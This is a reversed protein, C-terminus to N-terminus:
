HRDPMSNHKTYPLSMRKIQTITNTMAITKATAMNQGAARIIGLSTGDPWYGSSRFRGDQGEACTLLGYRGM